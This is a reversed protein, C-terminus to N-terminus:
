KVIVLASASEDEWVLNLKAVGRGIDTISWKLNEVMHEPQSMALQVRGLDYAPNYALGWEGTQKSVILVWQVPNSIDVFLTYDGPPVVLEGITLGVETHLATAANAGARWVPFHPDHSILGDKTFIHGERGKVAPSSYKITVAKGDFTATSVQSPSAPTKQQAFGTTALALLATCLVFNKM